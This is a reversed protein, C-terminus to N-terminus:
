TCGLRGWRRGDPHLAIYGADTTISKEVRLVMGRFGDADSVIIDAM